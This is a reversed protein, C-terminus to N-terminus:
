DKRSEEKIRRMCRRPYEREKKIIDIKKKNIIIGIRLKIRLKSNYLKGSESVM